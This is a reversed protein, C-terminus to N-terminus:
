SKPQVSITVDRTGGGRPVVVIRDHFKARFDTDINLTLDFFSEIDGDDLPEVRLVHPGPELGGIVFRGDDSLTFGGVMRGTSPNFAIVHVGLVGQGSKTVRGSISGRERRFVSNPYIDSIGAIDDARLTRGITSGPSFAVPFMVAEAAIVRRGGSRLETEGLASHGLGLLHGIEHLAISEVDFRDVGPSPTVTWDFFSNLFIEAEVIEGTLTDILFSTAGLTRDQDPRDLFGIVTLGDDENPRANTFGVFESSTDATEVAHWTDFAAAVADRLQTASVGGGAADTVFYRIPFEEWRLTVTRDDLTTGLKLYASAPDNSALLAFAIALWVTRRTM